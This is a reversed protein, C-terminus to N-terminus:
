IGNYHKKKRKQKKCQHCVNNIYLINCHDPLAFCMWLLSFLHLHSFWWYLLSFVDVFWFFCSCILCCLLTVVWSPPQLRFILPLPSWTWGHCTKHKNFCYFDFLWIFDDPTVFPVPVQQVRGCCVGPQHAIVTGYCPLHHQNFCWVHGRSAPSSCWCSIFRSYLAPGLLRELNASPTTVVAFSFVRRCILFYLQLHSFLIAFVFAFTFVCIGLWNDVADSSPSFM